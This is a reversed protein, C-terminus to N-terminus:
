YTPSNTSPWNWFHKKNDVFM